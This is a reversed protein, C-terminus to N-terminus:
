KKYIQRNDLTWIRPTFEKENIEKLAKDMDYLRADIIDLYHLLEAEPIMPFKPSGYEPYYHHSLIMHQLLISVEEDANIKKGVRDIEKIGQVIHGLLKGETTYDSVIGLENSEMEEIKALDHLIIGSYVYDSDLDNYVELLKEGSKLMRLMHYLLGSRISHHNEKAAPYYLLKEEKAEVIEKTIIKIDQNEIKDIYEKIIKLMEHGKYPASQIYDELSVNDCEEVKRIKNVKFQKFDKWLNVEGRIKVFDNVSIGKGKESEWIKTNITGTDDVVTLDYFEKGTSSTRKEINRVIFFGDVKDGPEFEDIKKEVINM